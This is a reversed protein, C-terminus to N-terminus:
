KRRPQPVIRIARAPSDPLGEPLSILARQGDQRWALPKSHGLLMISTDPAFSLSEISVEASKASDLIIAFLADGKRTFRISKGDTTTGEATLWPRTDYIADGNAALWKGLGELREAQAEPITGDAMPGVNILLNGNKSVIDVFSHILEKTTLLNDDPENQNYGFSTGLGRCAEWKKKSIEDL